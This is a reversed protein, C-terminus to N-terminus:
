ALAIKPIGHRAMVTDVLDRLMPKASENPYKVSVSGKGGFAKPIDRQADAILDFDIAHVSFHHQAATFMVYGKLYSDAFKYMPVQRFMVPPVSPYHREVYDWFETLWGRGVEPAAALYDAPSENM